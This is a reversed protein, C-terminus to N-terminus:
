TKENENKQLLLYAERGLIIAIKLLDSEENDILVIKDLIYANLNTLLVTNGHIQLYKQRWFEIQSKYRRINWKIPALEKDPNIDGFGDEKFQECVLGILFGFYYAKIVDGNIFTFLELDNAYMEQLLKDKYDVTVNLLM